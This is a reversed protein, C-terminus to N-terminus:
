PRWKTAYHLAQSTLNTSSYKFIWALNREAKPDDRENSYVKVMKSKDRTRDDVFGNFERSVLEKSMLLM